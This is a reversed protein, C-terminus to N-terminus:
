AYSSVETPQLIGGATAVGRILPAPPIGVSDTAGTITAAYTRDSVTVQHSGM